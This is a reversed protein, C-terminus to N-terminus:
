SQLITMVIIGRSGLHSYQEHPVPHLGGAPGAATAEAGGTPRGGPM